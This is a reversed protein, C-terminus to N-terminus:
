FSIIVSLPSVQEEKGRIDILSRARHFDSRGEATGEGRGGRTRVAHFLRVIIMLFPDLLVALEEKRRNAVLHHSDM